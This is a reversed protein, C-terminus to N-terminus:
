NSGPGVVGALHLSVIVLVLVIVITWVLVKLWVPTGSTAGSETEEGSDRYPPLDAM